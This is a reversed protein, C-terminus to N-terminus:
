EGRKRVPQGQQLRMGLLDDQSITRTPQSRFQDLAKSVDKFAVQGQRNTFVISDFTIGLLRLAAYGSDVDLYYEINDAHTEVSLPINHPTLIGTVVDSLSGTGSGQFPSDMCRSVGSRAQFQLVAGGDEVESGTQLNVFDVVARILMSEPEERRAVWIEVFSGVQIFTGAEIFQRANSADTALVVECYPIHQVTEEVKAERFTSQKFSAIQQGGSDFVRLEFRHELEPNSDGIESIM